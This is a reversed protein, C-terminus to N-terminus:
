KKELGSFVSREAKKEASTKQRLYMIIKLLNYDM